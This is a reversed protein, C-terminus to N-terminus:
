NFFNGALNVQLVDPLGNVSGSHEQGLGNGGAGVVVSIEIDFLEEIHFEGVQAGMQVDGSGLADVIQGLLGTNLAQAGHLLLVDFTNVFDEILVEALELDAGIVAYIFDGMPEGGSFLDNVGIHDLARFSALDSVENGEVGEGGADEVVVAM